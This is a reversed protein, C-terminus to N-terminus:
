CDRGTIEKFIKRREAETLGELQKELGKADEKIKLKRTSTHLTKGTKRTAITDGSGKQVVVAKGDQIRAEYPSPKGTRKLWRVKSGQGRGEIIRTRIQGEANITKMVTDGSSTIDVDFITETRLGVRKEVDEGGITKAKTRGDRTRGEAVRRNETVQSRGGEAQYDFEVLEGTRVAERAEAKIKAKTAVRKSAKGSPKKDATKRVRGKVPERKSKVEDLLRKGENAKSREKIAKKLAKKEAKPVKDQTLEKVDRRAQREKAAQLLRERLANAKDQKTAKAQFQRRIAQKQQQPVKDQVLRQNVDQGFQRQKAKAVEARGKVRQGAKETAELLQQAAKRMQPPADQSQALGRLQKQLKNLAQTDGGSELAKVQKGVRRTLIQEPRGQQFQSAPTETTIPKGKFSPVKKIPQSKATFVPRGARRSLISAILGQIGGEGLAASAIQKPDLGQGSLLQNGAAGVGGGLAGLGTNKLLAAAVSKAQPAYGALVTDLATNLAAQGGGQEGGLFQQLNRNLSAGGFGLGGALAGAGLASAGATAAIGQSLLGGVNGITAGADFAPGDGFDSAKVRPLGVLSTLFSGQEGSGALFGKGFDGVSGLIGQDQQPNPKPQTPPSFINTKLFESKVELRDAESLTSFDPDAEYHTKFFEFAVDVKDQVPLADWGAPDEDVVRKKFVPPGKTAQAKLQPRISPDEQLQGQQLIQPNAAM